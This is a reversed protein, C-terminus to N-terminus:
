EAYIKRKCIQLEPRQIRFELQSWLLRNQLLDNFLLDSIQMKPQKPKEWARSQHLRRHNWVQLINPGQLASRFLKHPPPQFVWVQIMNWPGCTEWPCGTADVEVNKLAKFSDPHFRTRLNRGCDVWESHWWQWLSFFAVFSAFVILSCQSAASSRKLCRAPWHASLDTYQCGLALALVDRSM